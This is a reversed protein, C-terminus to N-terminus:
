KLADEISLLEEMPGFFAPNIHLLSFLRVLQIWDFEQHKVLSYLTTRCTLTQSSFFSFGKSYCISHLIWVRMPSQLSFTTLCKRHRKKRLRAQFSFLVLLSLFFSLFSLAGSGAQTQGPWAKPQKSLTLRRLRTVLHPRRSPDSSKESM